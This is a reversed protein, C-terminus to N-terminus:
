ARIFICVALYLAVAFVSPNFKGAALLGAGAVFAAAALVATIIKVTLEARHEDCRKSLLLFLLTGGDLGSVPLLNFLGIVLNLAGFELSSQNKCFLWNSLMVGAAALNVAPGAAAIFAEGHPKKPFGRVIQVSAPILRISHPECGTAWMAFLHAAEHLLVAFLTPLVLGTRDTVLMVSIVAAFLFSIYIETGFIKFKM